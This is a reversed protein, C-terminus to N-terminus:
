RAAALREVRQLLAAPYVRGALQERTRRSVQLWEARHPGTDVPRVGRRILARYAREDMQRIRAAMQGHNETASDMLASRQAPTLSQMTQRGIIMGGVLFGNSQATMYRVSTSWQLAVAALASGPVVDVAGMRLGPYVEGISRPVGTAGVIALMEQFITNSPPLWPRMARLDAPRAVGRRTSFLRVRGSDGINVLEFGRQRFRTRFEPLLAARARDMQPYDEFLGPVQLVLISPDILSLGSSTLNAGDIQGTRMRRLVTREDGMTGGWYVRVSLTNGTRAALIANWGALARQGGSSRPALTAVRLVRPQPATQARVSEGGAVALGGALAIFFALTLTKLRNMPRLIAGMEQGDTM